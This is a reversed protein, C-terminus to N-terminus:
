NRCRSPCFLSFRMKVARRNSPLFPSNEENKRLVLPAKVPSLLGRRVRNKVGTRPAVTTYLNKKKRVYNQGIHVRWFYFCGETAFVAYWSKPFACKSKAEATFKLIEAIWTM